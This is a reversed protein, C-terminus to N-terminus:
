EINHYLISLKVVSQFEEFLEISVPNDENVYENFKGFLNQTSDRVSESFYSDGQIVKVFSEAKDVFNERTIQMDVFKTAVNAYWLDVILKPNRKKISNVINIITAINIDNDLKSCVLDLLYSYKNLFANLVQKKKMSNTIQSTISGMFSM